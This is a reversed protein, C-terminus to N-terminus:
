RVDGLLSASAMLSPAVLNRRNLLSSAMWAAALESSMRTMVVSWFSLSQPRM